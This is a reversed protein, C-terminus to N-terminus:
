SEGSTEEEPEMHRALYFGQALLFGFTIGMLGFLKFNVWTNEDFSFAVYLNLVGMAAFFLVWATNLRMWVPPAVSIAHGLMREVLNREGVFASGLFAVAFLWYAVTPKWKIFVPDHLALTAGGFVVVIALTILHMKEFRRHRLWFIAVQAVTAVIVTATAAYIGMVKYAVFFLLIPFFDYLFKM